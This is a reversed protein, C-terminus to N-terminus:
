ENLGMIIHLFSKISFFNFFHKDDGECYVLGNIQKRFGDM